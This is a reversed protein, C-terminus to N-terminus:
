KAQIRLNKIQVPGFEACISFHTEGPKAKLKKVSVGNCKIEASEGAVAFEFATWKDVEGGKIDGPKLDFKVGPLVPRQQLDPAAQLRIQYARRNGM